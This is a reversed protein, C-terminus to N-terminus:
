RVVFDVPMRLYIGAPDNFQDLYDISEKLRSAVRDVLGSKAGAPQLRNLAEAIAEALEKKRPFETVRFGEELGAEGAAYAIAEALGGLEDVLGIEAAAAGSWVRGQAIAQVESVELGRGEAVRGVFDTYVGDIGKQLLAVEEEDKPRSATLADAFRGTKVTDWTFGLDNGLEQINFLVGFVGISGTITTPEAFIRDAHTAIWYGGSAAYGGMSVVVPMVERALQVERLIQESAKASGGPSNVRLVLAAIDPDQRLRRIERSFKAGGVEDIRGRGNVIAGEAYVVAVRGRRNGTEAPTEEEAAAVKPAQQLYSQFSVQEFPDQADTVGTAAKLESIIEDTYAVRDIFGSALADEAYFGEGEDILVQMRGPEIGRDTAITDRLETWLEGLLAELQERNEPSLDRRTYPEIASKYTGARLAQVGIGFRDFAGKFFTPEAALGAVLLLGQPEMSVEDAVSGIYYDRVDPYDFHAHVPKGADRIAQLAARLERLAAFSTGYGSPAFSGKLLIGAIRDDRAAERLGRTVERLQLQGPIDQDSLAAAFANGDFQQPADTLNVGLDFVIYSGDEVTAPAQQGMSAMIGLMVFGLFAGGVFFLLLGAFTGLLSAFFSKM